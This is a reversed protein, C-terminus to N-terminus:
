TREWEKLARKIVERVAPDEIENPRKYTQTDVEILLGGNASQKLHVSRHALAPDAAIFRQLIEDIQNAISVMTAIAAEPLPGTPTPRSASVAPKENATSSSRPSTSLSHTQPLAPSPTRAIAALPPAVDADVLKQYGEAFVVLDGIAALVRRKVEPEPIEALNLYRNGGLEVVIKGLPPVRFVRMVEMEKRM